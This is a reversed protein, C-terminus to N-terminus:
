KLMQKRIFMRFIFEAIKNMFFMQCGRDYKLHHLSVLRFLMKMSLSLALLKVRISIDALDPFISGPSTPMKVHQYITSESLGCRKGAQSLSNGEYQIMREFIRGIDLSLINSKKQVQFCKNRLNILVFSSSLFNTFGKCASFFTRIAGIMLSFRCQSRDQINRIIVNVERDTRFSHGNRCPKCQPVSRGTCRCRGTSYFDRPNLDFRLEFNCKEPPEGDMASIIIACTIPFSDSVIRFTIQKFIPNQAEMKSRYYYKFFFSYKVM